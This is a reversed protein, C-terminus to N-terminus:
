RFFLLKFVMIIIAGVVLGVAVPITNEKKLRLYCLTGISVIFAVPAIIMYIGAANAMRTLLPVALLVTMAMTPIIGKKFHDKVGGHIVKMAYPMFLIFFTASYLTTLVPSVTDVIRMPTMSMIEGGAFTAEPLLLFGFLVCSTVASIIGYLLSPKEKQVFGVDALSIKAIAFAAIFVILQLIVSVISSAFSDFKEVFIQSIIIVLIFLPIVKLMQLYKQRTNTLEVIKQYRDSLKKYLNEFLYAQSKPSEKVMSLYASKPIRLTELEGDAEVTATRKGDILLALEGFYDGAELESVIEGDANKVYAHGSTVIYMGDESDDGIVVANEKDNFRVEELQKQLILKDNDSVGRQIAFFRDVALAQSKEETSKM